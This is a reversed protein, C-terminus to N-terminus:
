VVEFKSIFEDNLWALEQEIKNRKNMSMSKPKCQILRIEKTEKKFAFIDLPSKSGASRQVITFGEAKLKKVIRYEKARGSIYNKNPM